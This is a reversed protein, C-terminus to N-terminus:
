FPIGVIKETMELASNINIKEIINAIEPFNLKLIGLSIV